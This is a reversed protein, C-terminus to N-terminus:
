RSSYEDNYHEYILSRSFKIAYFLSTNLMSRIHKLHIISSNLAANQDDNLNPRLQEFEISDMQFINPDDKKKNGLMKGSYMNAGTKQQM